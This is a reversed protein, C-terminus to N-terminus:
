GRRAEVMWLGGCPRWARMMPCRPSCSSCSGNRASGGSVPHERPPGNVQVGDSRFMLSVCNAAGAKSYSAGVRDLEAHVRERIPDPVAPRLWPAEGDNTVDAVPPRPTLRDTRSVHFSTRLREGCLGARLGLRCCRGDGVVGM